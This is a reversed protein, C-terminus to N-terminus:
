YPYPYQYPTYYATWVNTASCVYLKSQDTAWYGVGVTCTATIGAFTGQGIGRTGNFTGIEGYTGFQVYFDTNQTTISAGSGGTSNGIIPAATYYQPVYNNNWVYIPSLAEHPWTQTGTVTNAASPFGLGNLLQGQGRGPQDLCPYGSSNNNGDWSSPGGAATGCFGWGNPPAVYHYSGGGATTRFNYSILIANQYGGTVANGWYLLTGSNVSYTPNSNNGTNDFTNAYVEAARVGRGRSDTVGHNFMQGNSSTQVTCHRIVYRGGDHSDGIPAEIRSDELFMFESSGWHDSDAWSADGNDSSSGGNWGQGNDFAIGAEGDTTNIYNHDMVGTVSGEFAVEYASLLMFFHCHDVRVSTSPGDIVIIGNNPTTSSANQIVAIGTFRFSKGATTTFAMSYSPGHTINDIITTQDTGTTAAGGATSSVAGAGQITVSNTFTQTIASAGTWTCTGAPIQVVTGDPRSAATTLATAVDSESCSAAMVPPTGGSAIAGTRFGQALFPIAVLLFVIIGFALGIASKGLREM